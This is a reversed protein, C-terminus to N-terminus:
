RGGRGASFAAQYASAIAAKAKGPQAADGIVDVKQNTAILRKFVSGTPKRAYYYFWDRLRASTFLRRALWSKGLGANLLHPM